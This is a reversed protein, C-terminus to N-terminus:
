QPAAIDAAVPDAGDRTVLALAHTLAHQRSSRM